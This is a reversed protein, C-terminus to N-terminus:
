ERILDEAIPNAGARIGAQSHLFVGACAAEFPPIHKALMAAIIGSLVDGSGATALCFSTDADIAARGDPAAIVTDAGKLVM